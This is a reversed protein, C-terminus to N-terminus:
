VSSTLLYILFYHEVKDLHSWIGLFLAVLFTILGLKM